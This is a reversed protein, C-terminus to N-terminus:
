GRAEDYAILAGRFVEQVKPSEKWNRMFRAMDKGRQREYGRGSRHFLISDLDILQLVGEDDLILNSAKMDGHTARLLCLEHWRSAFQAPVGLGADIVKAHDMWYLHEGSVKEMLLYAQKQLPGSKEILCAVPRPTPVGFLRLVHGGTWSTLARVTFLM